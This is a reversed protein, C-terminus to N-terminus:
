RPRALNIVMGTGDAATRFRAGKQEQTTGGPFVSSMGAPSTAVSVRIDSDIALVATGSASSNAQSTAQITVSAPNPLDQPATYLGTSSITGVTSNGGSVGNM